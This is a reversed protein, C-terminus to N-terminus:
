RLTITQDVTKGAELKIIGTGVYTKSGKKSTAKIDYIAPLKFTFKAKGDGDTDANAKLDAQVTGGNSTRVIAYLQVNAGSWGAGVSDVCNVTAICDDNKKCSTGTLIFCSLFFGAIIVLLPKMILYNVLCL